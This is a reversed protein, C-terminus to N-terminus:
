YKITHLLLFAWPKQRSAPQAQLGQSEQSVIGRVYPKQIATQPHRRCSPLNGLYALAGELSGPGDLYAILVSSNKKM